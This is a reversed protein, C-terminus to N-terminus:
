HLLAPAKMCACLCELLPPCTCLIIFPKLSLIQCARRKEPTLAMARSLFVSVAPWDRDSLDECPCKGGGMEMADDYASRDDVNTSHVDAGRAVLLRTAALHGERAAFHLPTDRANARAHIDARRDLLLAIVETKNMEAACHLPSAGGFDWVLSSNKSGTNSATLHLSAGHDLLLSVASTHGSKVALHIAAQGLYLGDINCGPQSLEQSLAAIDGDKATDHLAPRSPTRIKMSAELEANEAKPAASQPPARAAGVQIRPRGPAFAPPPAEPNCAGIPARRGSRPAHVSSMSVSIPSSLKPSAEKSACASVNASRAEAAQLFTSSM